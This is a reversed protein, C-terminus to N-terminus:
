GTSLQEAELRAESYPGHEVLALLRNQFASQTTLDISNRNESSGFAQQIFRFLEVAGGGRVAVAVASPLRWGRPPSKRDQHEPIPEAQLVM